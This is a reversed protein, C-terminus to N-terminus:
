AVPNQGSRVLEKIQDRLSRDVGARGLTRDVEVASSLTQGNIYVNVSRNTNQVTSSSVTPNYESMNVIPSSLKQTKKGGFLSKIGKFIGLGASVISGFTGLFGTSSGSGGFLGGKKTLSGIMDSLSGALQGFTENGSSLFGAFMQDIGGGMETYGGLVKQLFQDQGSFMQEWWNAPEQEEDAGQAGAQAGGAAYNSAGATFGEAKEQM